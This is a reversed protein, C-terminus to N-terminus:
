ATLIVVGGHTILVTHEAQASRAGTETLVTWGDPLVWGRADDGQVLCPEITFCHGPKMVGPEDNKHHLIWPPSHFAEGIGHGALDASVSFGRSAALESIAKGIGKFPRGPGCALIGAQLASRTASILSRGQDDVEGVVFTDSTDGHYGDAYVTVDINIVDGSELPRDDPIGHAIVNNVSTCCSKPFGKYLLPSPYANRSIIFHHIRNDITATTVGPKVLSEAFVRTEKALRCANRMKLEEEGGLELSREVEHIDARERTRLTSSYPPRIIHMPVLNPPIHRTGEATPCSPLVLDYDGFKLTTEGDPIKRTSYPLYFRPHRTRARGLISSLLRSGLSCM